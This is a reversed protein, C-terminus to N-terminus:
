PPGPSYDAPPARGGASFDQDLWTMSVRAPAGRPSPTSGPAGSGPNAPYVGIRARAHGPRPRRDAAQWGTAPRQRTWDAGARAPFPLRSRPAAAARPAGLAPM